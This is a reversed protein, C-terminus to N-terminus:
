AKGGGLWKEVEEIKFAKKNATINYFPLGLKIYRYITSRDVKLVDALAKVGIVIEM